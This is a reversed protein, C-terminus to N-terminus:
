QCYKAELARVSDYVSLVEEETWGQELCQKMWADRQIQAKEQIIDKEEDTFYIFEIQPNDKKLREIEANMNTDFMDSANQGSVSEIAEQIDAPFADWVKQNIVVPWISMQFPQVTIYKTLGWLNDDYALIHGMGVGDVVGKEYSTFIEPQGLTVATAGLSEYGLGSVSGAYWIKMGKFDDITRIAKDYTNPYVPGCTWTYLVKLGDMGKSMLEKQEEFLKWTMNCYPAGEKRYPNILSTTEWMTLLGPMRPPDVETIDMIGDRCADLVEEAPALGSLDYLTIQVRGNTAEAVADIWPEYCSQVLTGSKPWMIQMSLEYTEDSAIADGPDTSDSGGGTNGDSSTGGGGCAALVFISALLVAIVRVIRRKKM